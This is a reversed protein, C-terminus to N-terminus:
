LRYILWNVLETSTVKLKHTGYENNGQTKISLVDSLQGEFWGKCIRSEFWM